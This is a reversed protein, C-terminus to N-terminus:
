LTPLTRIFGHVFFLLGLVLGVIGRFTRRWSLYGLWDTAAHWCLWLGCCLEFLNFVFHLCYRSIFANSRAVWRQVLAVKTM